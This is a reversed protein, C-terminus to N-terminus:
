CRTWMFFIIILTGVTTTHPYIRVKNLTLIENLLINFIIYKKHRNTYIYINRNTVDENYCLLSARM